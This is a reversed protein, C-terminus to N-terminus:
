QKEAASNAANIKMAAALGDMHRGYKAAQESAALLAKYNESEPTDYRDDLLPKHGTRMVFVKGMPAYMVDELPRNIRHSVSKCTQLDFGGPFYAYTSACNIITTADGQSYMSSLQSESQLMMMASIGASRFVSIYKAFNRIPAGCAFDDFVFKVPRPLRFNPCRGAYELLQKIATGFMMNAFTYLSTNVPSTIIFLAVKERSIEEFDVTSRERMAQRICEPFMESLAASLTQRVSTSTKYASNRFTMFERYAFSDRSFQAFVDDLDTVTGSGSERITMSDFLELVDTFCADDKLVLAATILASLLSISRYNWFVDDTKELTSLVVQHALDHIDEYSCIYQLPDFFTNGRSPDTLDCVLVKYNKTQMYLALEYAEGPKSFSAILSGNNMAQMTPLGVSFSKGVGPAGVILENDNPRASDADQATLICHKSLIVPDKTM